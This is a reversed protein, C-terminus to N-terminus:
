RPCGPVPTLPPAVPTVFVDVDTASWAQASEVWRQDDPGVQTSTGDAARWSLTVHAAQRAARAALEGASRGPGSLCGLPESPAFADTPLLYSQGAAAAAGAMVTVAAGDPVVVGALGGARGTSAAVQVVRGRRSPGTPVEVVEVELDEAALDRAVDAASAGLDVVTIEHGGPVSRVAVSSAEAHSGFTSALVTAGVVVPAAVM